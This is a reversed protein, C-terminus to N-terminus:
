PPVYTSRSAAGAKAPSPMSPTLCRLPPIGPPLRRRRELLAFMFLAASHTQSQPSVLPPAARRPAPRQAHGADWCFWQWCVFFVFLGHEVWAEASCEM